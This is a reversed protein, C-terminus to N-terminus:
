RRAIYYLLGRGPREIGARRDAVQSPAQAASLDILWSRELSELADTVAADDAIGRQRLEIRLDPIPILGGLRHRADLDAIAVLV